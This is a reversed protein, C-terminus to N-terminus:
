GFHFTPHRIYEEAEKKVNGDIQGKNYSYPNLYMTSFLPIVLNSDIYLAALARLIILSSMGCDDYISNPISLLHYSIMKNM